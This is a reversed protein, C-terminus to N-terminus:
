FSDSERQIRDYSGKDSWIELHAGLQKMTQVFGPFSVEIAETNKVETVGQAVTGAVALAMAMRHDGWSATSAGSLAGTGEIILGDPLERVKAGMKSLESVISAIRDTEKYRLEGAGRIETVGRAMAAAVAIVPIEDIVRPILEGGICVGHLPAAAVRLDAVPEGGWTRENSVEVSAGMMELVQIIGTRTPNMGVDRIVVLSEPVVSAAVLLFAAASLDGPVQVRGGTLEVGGDVAICGSEDGVAAGFHRLLRETHDRSPQPQIVRTTGQAQLGALLIASKLQASAVPLTYEIATLEQRGRLALPARNGGDRGLIEAGMLRLPKIVRGMPRQRLSSDGTIAAFLDNGALVGLLLRITTGSNGADLVEPPELLGHLGRGTVRVANGEVSLEVGLSQLCELTHLCDSGMLFNEIVTEGRALAGLLAARHSISKDGPVKCTGSLGKQSPIIKLNM